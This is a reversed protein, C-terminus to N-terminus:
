KKRRFLAVAGLGLLGLAISSPEPVGSLAFGLVPQDGNPAVVTGFLGGAAILGGGPTTTGVTSAGYLGAGSVAAAYSGASTQWARIQFTIRTSTPFGNPLVFSGGSPNGNIRGAVPGNTTTAGVLVLAGELAGEPGAYIGITYLGIGTINGVGTPTNTTILSTGANAFNVTGQAYAGIAFTVLACTLLIKKM